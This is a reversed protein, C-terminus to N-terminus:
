SNRYQEIDNWMAGVLFVCVCSQMKLQDISAM